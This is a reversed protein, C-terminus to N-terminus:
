ALVLDHLYACIKLFFVLDAALKKLMKLSKRTFYRGTPTNTNGTGPDFQVAPHRDPDQLFSISGVPNTDVVSGVTRKKSIRWAKTKDSVGLLSPVTFGNHQMCAVGVV